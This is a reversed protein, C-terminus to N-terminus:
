LIEIKQGAKVKVIAKKYGKKFGQIKGLRRKKPAINIINVSLVDVGYIIEIAEKIQVKNAKPFVDFIYQNIENLGMSKESIHPESVINYVTAVSKKRKVTERKPAEGGADALM